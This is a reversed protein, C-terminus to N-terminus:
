RLLEEVGIGNALEIARNSEGFGLSLLAVLAVIGEESIGFSRHNASRM